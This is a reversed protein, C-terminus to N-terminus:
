QPIEMGKRVEKQWKEGKHKWSPRRKAKDQISIAYNVPVSYFHKVFFASGLSCFAM